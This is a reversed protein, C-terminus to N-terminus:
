EELKLIELDIENMNIKKDEIHINPISYTNPTEEEDDYLSVKEKVKGIEM